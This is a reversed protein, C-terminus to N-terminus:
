THDNITVFAALMERLSTSRLSPPQFSTRSQRDEEESPSDEGALIELLAQTLQERRAAPSEALDPTNEPTSSAMNHGQAMFAFSLQTHLRILAQAFPLSPESDAETAPRM